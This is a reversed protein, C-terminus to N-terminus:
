NKDINIEIQKVKNKDITFTLTKGSEEDMYELYTNSNLQYAKNPTGYAQIVDNPTDGLQVGRVTDKILISFIEGLRGDTYIHFDGLDYSVIFFRDETKGINVESIIEVENLLPPKDFTTLDTFTGHINVKFDEATIPVPRVIPQSHNDGLTSEGFFLMFALLLQIM